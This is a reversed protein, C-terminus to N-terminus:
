YSCGTQRDLQTQWSYCLVKSVLDCCEADQEGTGMGLAHSPQLGNDWVHASPGQVCSPPWGSKILFSCTVRKRSTFLLHTGSVAGKNYSAAYYRPGETAVVLLYVAVM